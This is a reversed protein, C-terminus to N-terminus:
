AAKKVRAQWYIAEWGETTVEGLYGNDYEEAFESTEVDDYVKRYITGKSGRIGISVWRELM